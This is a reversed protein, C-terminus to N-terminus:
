GKKYAQFLSTRPAIVVSYLKNQGELALIARKSCPRGPYM